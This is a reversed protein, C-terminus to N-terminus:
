EHMSGEPGPMPFFVLSVSRDVRKFLTVHTEHSNGLSHSPTSVVGVGSPLLIWLGCDVSGCHGFSDPHFYKGSLWEERKDLGADLDEKESLIRVMSLRIAGLFTSRPRTIFLTDDM